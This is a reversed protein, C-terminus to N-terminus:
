PGVSTSRCGTMAGGRHDASTCRAQSPDMWGAPAGAGVRRRLGDHLPARAGPSGGGALPLDATVQWFTVFPIWRSEALVDRGRPESLWDPKHLILDPSWWVIPDSPHQVYLVRTGDWPAGEPQVVGDPRATSGSSGATASCRSSRSPQGPRPRRQVRPVPHQLQAAGDLLAGSTRNALDYEGSFAAEGGFTGLSEGFVVLEPRDDQPLQLWRAYVADFLARGAERAEAQDVLYSIWSPLYSYQIAVIASDGGVLYEFSDAGGPSVWGSGTTTAVMLYAREFGGARELDAVAIAARDETDEATELGAFARIPEPAAAGTFAAIEASTPGGSMFTRGERGLSDWSVLSEPGGSRLSSTPQTVGDQTDGNALSFSRNALDSLTGLVLGSVVLYTGGVVVTWGVAKAARPGVQRSLRDALGLYLRHLGRSGAVLGVFLLAAIVPLLLQSVVGPAEVGMLDRIQAQWRRGALFAVLLAIAAVVFFIRWSRPRAPRAERDAFARWVWAGLVGFGYGIAASIGCVAGQVIGSRPLLSPTFALCAFVLAVWSGPLTYRFRRRPVGSPSAGSPPVDHALAHSPPEVSGASM